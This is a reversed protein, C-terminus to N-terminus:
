SNTGHLRRYSGPSMKMEELFQRNFNSLNGFGVEFCIESIPQATQRLLRCAHVIRMGRVMEVFGRGSVRKFFRSFTPESMGAIRAASSMRVQQHLNTFIYTLVRDVVPAASADLNPSFWESALVKSEQRPARALLTFLIFFRSLREIGRTRGIATMEQAAASATEGSFELGRSARAFLRKLEAIEPVFQLANCLSEGDFQLVTDRNILRKGKSLNSIWHHPLNPGILALHGDSFDGVYDGVIVRGTSQHILHIEFEPHHNWRAIECPYDHQHWRLWSEVEPLVIERASSRGIFMGAITSRNSETLSGRTLEQDRNEAM